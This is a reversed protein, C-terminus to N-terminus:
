CIHLHTHVLEQMYTFCFSKEKKCYHLIISYWNIFLVNGRKQSGLIIYLLGASFTEILVYIMVDFEAHLATDLTLASDGVSRGVLRGPCM